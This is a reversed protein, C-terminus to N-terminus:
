TYSKVSKESKLSTLRFVPKEPFEEKHDKVTVYANGESLREVRDEIGLKMVINKAEININNIKSRSTRKYIKTVNELLYKEYEEKTM